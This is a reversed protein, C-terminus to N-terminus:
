PVGSGKTGTPRRGIPRVRIGIGAVRLSPYLTIVDGADSVKNVQIQPQFTRCMFRSSPYAAVAVYKDSLVTQDLHSSNLVFASAGGKNNIMNWWPANTVADGKSTALTQWGTDRIGGGDGFFLLDIVDGTASQAEDIKTPDFSLQCNLEVWDILKQVMPDGYDYEKFRMLQVISRSFNTYGGDAKSWDYLRIYSQPTASRNALCSVLYESGTGNNCVIQSQFPLMQPGWWAAKEIGWRLDLWFQMAPVFGYPASADDVNTGIFETYDGGPVSLMYVGNFYTGHWGASYSRPLTKLFEAIRDGIRVPQQGPPLLWVNKGSCWILGMPTAAITDRSVCGEERMLQVVKLTGNDTNTPPFGQAVYVSRQKFIVLYPDVAQAGGLIATDALGIVSDADNPGVVLSTADSLLTAPDSINSFRLLSQEGPTTYGATILTDRYFCGISPHPANGGAAWNLPNAYGNIIDQSGYVIPPYDGGAFVYLKGKYALWQQRGTPPRSPFYQGTSGIKLTQIYAGTQPDVEILAPLNNPATSGCMIIMHYINQDDVFQMVFSDTVADGTGLQTQTLQNAFATPQVRRDIIGPTNPFCDQAWALENDEIFRQHMSLNIGAWNGMLVDSAAM